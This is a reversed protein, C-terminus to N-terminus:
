VYRIGYSGSRSLAAQASKCKAVFCDRGWTSNWPAQSYKEWDKWFSDAKLAGNDSGMGNSLLYLDTASPQSCKDVNYWLGLRIM